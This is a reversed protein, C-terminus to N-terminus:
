DVTSTDSFDEPPATRSVASKESLPAAVSRPMSIGIRHMAAVDMDRVKARVAHLEDSASVGTERLGNVAEVVELVERILRLAKGMKKTSEARNRHISNKLVAERSLLAAYQQDNAMQEEALLRVLKENSRIIARQALARREELRKVQDDLSFEKASVEPIAAVMGELPSGALRNNYHLFMVICSVFKSIEVM